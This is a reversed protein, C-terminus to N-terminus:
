ILLHFHLLSLFSIVKYLFKVFVDLTLPYWIPNNEMKTKCTKYDPVSILDKFEELKMKGFTCIRLLKAPLNNRVYDHESTRIFLFILFISLQCIFCLFGFSPFSFSM